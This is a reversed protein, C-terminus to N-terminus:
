EHLCPGQTRGARDSIEGRVPCRHYCRRRWGDTGQDGSSRGQVSDMPDLCSGYRRCEAFWSSGSALYGGQSTGSATIKGPNAKAEALVDKLSKYPSDKSVTFGAPVLDLLAIPTVQEYTLDTLGIWHMTNIETTTSGVTYGDPKARAIASHGTVGNGGTRNVVNFPQGMEESLMVPSCAPMPMRAAVPEGHCSTPLRARRNGIVNLQRQQRLLRM